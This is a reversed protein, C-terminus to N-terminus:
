SCCFFFAYIIVLMDPTGPPPQRAGALYPNELITQLKCKRTVVRNRRRAARHNDPFIERLYARARERGSLVCLLFLYICRINNYQYAHTYLM